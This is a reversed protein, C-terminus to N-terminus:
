AAAAAAAIAADIAAQDIPADQAPVAEVPPAAAVPPAEATQAEAGVVETVRLGYESDIVVVEGRAVLKGNVLLDVPQDAMRDLAIVSGPGLALAEGLSMSTRGIEVSLEVRVQALRRLGDGTDIPAADVASPTLSTIDSM